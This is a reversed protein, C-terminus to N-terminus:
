HRRGGERIWRLSTIRTRCHFRDIRVLSKGNALRGHRQSIVVSQSQKGIEATKAASSMHFAVVKSAITAGASSASSRIQRM